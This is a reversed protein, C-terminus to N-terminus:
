TVFYIDMSWKPEWWDKHCLWNRAGSIYQSSGPTTIQEGRSDCTGRSYFWNPYYNRQWVGPLAVTVDTDHQPAAASSAAGFGAFVFVFVLAVSGLARHILGSKFRM